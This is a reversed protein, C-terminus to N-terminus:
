NGAAPHKRDQWWNILARVLFMSRLTIIGGPGLDAVVQQLASTGDDEAESRGQDVGGAESGPRERQM